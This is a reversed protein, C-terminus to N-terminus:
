EHNVNNLESIYDLELHKELIEICHEYMSPSIFYNKSRDMTKLEEKAHYIGIGIIREFLFNGIDYRRNTEHLEKVARKIRVSTKRSKKM